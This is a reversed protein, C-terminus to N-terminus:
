SRVVFSPIFETEVQLVRWEGTEFNKVVFRGSTFGSRHYTGPYGDVFWSEKDCQILAWELVEEFDSVYDGVNDVFRFDNALLNDVRESDSAWYVGWKYDSM